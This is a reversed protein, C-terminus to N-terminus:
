YLTCKSEIIVDSWGRYYKIINKGDLISKLNSPGFEQSYIPSGNLLKTNYESGSTWFNNNKTFRQFLTILKVVGNEIIRLTIFCRDFSDKGIMIPDTVDNVTIKDIYDTGGIFRSKFNLHPCKSLLTPPFIDTIKGFKKKLHLHVAHKHKGSCINNIYKSSIHLQDRYNLYEGVICIVEDPIDSFDLKKVFFFEWIKLITIM